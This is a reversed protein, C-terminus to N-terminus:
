NCTSSTQSCVHGIWIPLGANRRGVWATPRFLGSDQGGPRALVRRLDDVPQHSDEAVFGFRGAVADGSAPFDQVSSDPFRDCGGLDIYKHGLPDVFEARLFQGLQFGSKNSVRRQQEFLVVDGLLLRGLFHHL